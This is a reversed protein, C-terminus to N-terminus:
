RKDDRGNRLAPPYYASWDEDRTSDTWALLGREGADDVDAPVCLTERRLKDLLQTLEAPTLTRAENLIRELKTMRLM